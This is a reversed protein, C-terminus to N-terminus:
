KGKRQTEGFYPLKSPDPGGPKKPPYYETNLGFASVIIFQRFAPVGNVRGELIYYEDGSHQEKKSEAQKKELYDTIEEINETDVAMEKDHELLFQM